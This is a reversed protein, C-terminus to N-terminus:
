RMVSTRVKTRLQNKNLSPTWTEASLLANVYNEVRQKLNQFAPQSSVFLIHLLYASTPFLVKVTTQYWYLGMLSKELKETVLPYFSSAEVEMLSVWSSM